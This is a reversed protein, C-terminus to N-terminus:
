AFGKELKDKDPLKRQPSVRGRLLREPEGQGVPEELYHCTQEQPHWTLVLRCDRRLDRTPNLSKQRLPGGRGCDM